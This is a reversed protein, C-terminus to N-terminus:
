DADPPWADRLARIEDATFDIQGRAMLMTTDFVRRGDSRPTLLIGVSTLDDVGAVGLRQLRVQVWEYHRLQLWWSFLDRHMDSFKDSCVGFALHLAERGGVFRRHRWLTQGVPVNTTQALAETLFQGIQARHSVPLRDLEALVAVRDREHFEAPLPALAIDEFISRVLLHTREDGPVSRLPLQPASVTRGGPGVLAPDIEDPEAQQDAMALEFYRVPEEGLDVPRAAIRELYEGVAHASKLQDFLFNWDRRLLVVAPREPDLPPAPAGKPPSPHDIVVVSLWRLRSGDIEVSRGRANTHVEPQATLRRISGRAQRLARGTQKEIWARERETNATAATRSKVQVVIGLAGVIILNDGLERAGAGVGVTKGRYTFDPLGWIAAADHVAEEAAKGQDAEMPLPSANPIRRFLVGAPTEVVLTLEGTGSQQASEGKGASRGELREGAALGDKREGDLCCRKYKLGSGCPCPDNRGPSRSM